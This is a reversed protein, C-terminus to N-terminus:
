HLMKQFRRSDIAYGCAQYFLHADQARQDGSSVEIRGCGRARAFGDLGALLARGVGQRQRDSRICMATIRGLNGSAHFLPIVHFSVFGVVEGVEDAVLVTDSSERYVGIRKKVEVPGLEYGLEMLLSSISEADGDDAERIRISTM